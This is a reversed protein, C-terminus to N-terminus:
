GEASATAPNVSNDVTVPSGSSLRNQGATVVQDGPTVGDVIEVLGRSRRGVTVFVQEVRLSQEDGEGETRVVYVSDGYLNSSVATQPLAIIGEEEPLEVRVRLFQGPNIDGSPNDVEARINLLRTNADIKPDIGIVHGSLEVDGVESFVTVPMGVEILRIRQEPVSFDVRMTDLDQLTAYVTGVPVYEGLEVRPIGIVGSFPAELAKQEMIATLKAVQSRANTAQATATDVNSTPTV